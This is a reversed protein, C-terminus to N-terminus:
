AMGWGAFLDAYQAMNEIAQLTKPSGSQEPAVNNTIWTSAQDWTWSAWGPMEAADAKAQEDKKVAEYVGGGKDIYQVM